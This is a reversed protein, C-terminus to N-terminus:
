SAWVTATLAPGSASGLARTSPTPVGTASPATTDPESM